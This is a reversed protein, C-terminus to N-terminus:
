EKKKSNFDIKNEKGRIKKKAKQVGNFMLMSNPSLVKKSSGPGPPTKKQHVKEIHRDVGIESKCVEQCIPCKMEKLVEVLPLDDLNENNTTDTFYSDYM